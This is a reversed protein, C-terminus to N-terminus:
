APEPPRFALDLFTLGVFIALTVLALFLLVKFLRREYKLRMFFFVVLSAKLTALGLAAAVNGFGLDLRSVAITAGTLLALGLWVALLLRDGTVPQPEHHNPPAM